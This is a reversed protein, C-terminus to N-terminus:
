SGPVQDASALGEAKIQVDALEAGSFARITEGNSIAGTAGAAFMGAHLDTADDVDVIMMFDKPGTTVHHDLM